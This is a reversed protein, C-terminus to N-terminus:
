TCRLVDLIQKSNNGVESVSAEEGVHRWFHFSVTTLLGFQLLLWGLFLDWLPLPAPHDGGQSQKRM